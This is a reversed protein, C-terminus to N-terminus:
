SGSHSAPGSGTPRLPARSPGSTVSFLLDEGEYVDVATHHRSELLRTAALERAGDRNRANVIALNPVRYRDDHIYLQFTAADDAAGAPFGSRSLSADGCDAPL